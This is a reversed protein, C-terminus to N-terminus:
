QRRRQAVCLPSLTKRSHKRFACAASGFRDYAITYQVLNDTRKTVWEVLRDMFSNQRRLELLYPQILSTEPTFRHTSVAPTIHRAGLYCWCKLLLPDSHDSCLTRSTRLLRLEFRLMTSASEDAIPTDQAAATAGITWRTWLASEGGLLQSSYETPWGASSYLVVYLTLRLQDITVEAVGVAGPKSPQTLRTHAQLRAVPLACQPSSETQIIIADADIEASSKCCQLM